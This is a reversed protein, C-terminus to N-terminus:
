IIGMEKLLSKDLYTNEIPKKRGAGMIDSSSPNDDEDYRDPLGLTHAFEHYFITADLFRKNVLLFGDVSNINVVYVISEDLGLKKAIEGPSDLESEYIIGGAGGVGEYFLAMVRYESKDIASFNENYLDGSTTFARTEIEESINVLGRPNGASTTDTDYHANDQKLIFPEPFIDYALKSAGRFQLDHFRAAKDLTTALKEKWDPD